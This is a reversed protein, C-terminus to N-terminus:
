RLRSIGAFAVLAILFVIVMLPIIGLITAGSTGVYQYNASQYAYDVGVKFSAATGACGTTINWTAPINVWKITGNSTKHAADENQWSYCTTIACENVRSGTLNYIKPYNDARLDVATHALSVWTGNCGTVTENAIATLNGYNEIGDVSIPVAVALLIITAVVLGIITTIVAAGKM